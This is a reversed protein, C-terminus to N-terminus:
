VAIIPQQEILCIGLTEIESFGKKLLIEIINDSHRIFRVCLNSKCHLLEIIVEELSIEGDAIRGYELFILIFM